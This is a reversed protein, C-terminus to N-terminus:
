CFKWRKGCLNCYCFTTMPEDASRTQVQNYTVDCKKCALCKIESTKTGTTLSLQHDNIAEKHFKEREQKLEKSAMEDSTMKAIREASIDGRLVNYRLYPNRADGLNAVRSRVKNKYKFDTVKFELFINEEINAALVEEELLHDDQMSQPLPKKLADALLERCKLRVESTTHPVEKRSFSKAPVKTATAEKGSSNSNANNTASNTTNPNSTPTTQTPTTPTSLTNNSSKETKDARESSVAPTQSEVSSLLKKWKKIMSKSLSSVEPSDLSKRIKNVTMGIQTKKLVEFSMPVSELSRLLELAQKDDRTSAISELGKKIRMVEDM